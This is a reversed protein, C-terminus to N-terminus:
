LSACMLKEKKGAHSINWCLPLKARVSVLISPLSVWSNRRKEERRRRGNRKEEEECLSFALAKERERRKVTALWGRVAERWKLMLAWLLRRKQTQLSPWLSSLSWSSIKETCSANENEREEAVVAMQNLAVSKEEKVSSMLSVNLCKSAALSCLCVSLMYLSLFSAATLCLCLLPLASLASIHMLWLHSVYMRLALQRYFVLSFIYCIHQWSYSHMETEVTSTHGRLAMSLKKEACSAAKWQASAVNLGAQFSLSLSLALYKASPYAKKSKAMKQSLCVSLSAKENTKTTYWTEERYRTSVSLWGRWSYGLSMQSLLWKMAWGRANSYCKITELANIYGSISWKSLWASLSWSRKLLPIHSLSM